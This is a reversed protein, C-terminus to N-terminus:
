SRPTTDIVLDALQSTRDAAFLVDEQGAWRLWHPRFAEGDRALGRRMRVARDAQVWVRVGAYRGAPLVSSGCGELILVPCPGVLLTDGWEGRTWDWRRYAAREGRSLPELVLETVRRVGEALGDWGPYLDDMHVVPAALLDATLAALTTKGSGSPGDVALVVTTGCRPEATSALRGLAGPVQEDPEWFDLPM